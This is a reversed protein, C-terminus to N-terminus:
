LMAGARVRYWEDGKEMTNVVKFEEWREVVLSLAVIIFMWSNELLNYKESTISEM